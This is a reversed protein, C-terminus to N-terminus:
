DLLFEHVLHDNTKKQQNMKGRELACCLGTTASPETKTESIESKMDSTLINFQEICESINWSNAVVINTVTEPHCM